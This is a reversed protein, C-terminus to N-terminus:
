DKGNTEKENMISAAAQEKLDSLFSSEAYEPAKPEDEIYETEGLKKLVALLWNKKVKAM